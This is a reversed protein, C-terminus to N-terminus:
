RMINRSCQSSPKEDDVITPQEKEGCPDWEPEMKDGNDSEKNTEKTNMDKDEEVLLDQAQNM